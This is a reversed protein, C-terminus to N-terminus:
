NERTLAIKGAALLMTIVGGVEAVKLWNVRYLGPLSATNTNNSGASSTHSISVIDGLVARTTASDPGSSGAINATTQATDAKTQATINGSMHSTTAIIPDCADDINDSDADQGSAPVVLCPNTKDAGLYDDTQAAVYFVKQVDVNEGAMNTGYIHLTHYGPETSTPITVTVSVNGDADVGGEYLLVPDSHLVVQYKSGPQLQTATGDAAVQQNQGRVVFNSTITNDYTVAAIKRGTSPIGQLIDVNPDFTPLSFPGPVPMPATLDATQAAIAQALLQYGLVTPHYSEAGIVNIQRGKINVGADNGATLGNMAKDGAECLRHGDFAHQTDVYFVGATKAAKQVVGDLYDILDSSFAVEDSNLHVNLGCDGGVKAVQPYGVVYLKAGASQERLTQYTSVLKSYTNNIENVLEARDEYTGYCTGGGANAVCSKVIDAFGIDDGGVSLLMAEPKYTSAFEQQYIYGPLFIALISPVDRKSEVIEDKVQGTYKTDTGVINETTAGSCAVSNSSNFGQAGLIFPYSLHSLHCTNVGTDTGDVYDFTGQGSIYSDGFGLLGIKHQVGGPATAVFSAAKYIQNSQVAYRANFSITQDDVFRLRVPGELDAQESLIGSGKPQGALNKGEWINRGVCWAHQNSPVDLQDNCTSLDYVNLNGTGFLDTNAAVFRGDNTIALPPSAVGIFWSPELPPAFLQTSMDQLNVRILGRQPVNVVMWQGNASYAISPTSVDILENTTQDRLIVDPQQPVYYYTRYESEVKTLASKTLHRYIGIYNGIGNARLSVVATSSDPAPLFTSVHDPGYLPTYKFEGTELEGQEDLTGLPSAFNCVWRISSDPLAYSNTDCDANHSDPAVNGGLEVVKSLVPADESLWTTGDDARARPLVSGALVAIFAFIVFLLGARKCAIGM